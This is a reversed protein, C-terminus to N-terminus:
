VATTSPSAVATELRDTYGQLHEVYLDEIIQDDHTNGKIALAGQCDELLQTVKNIDERAAYINDLYSVQEASWHYAAALSEGEQATIGLM